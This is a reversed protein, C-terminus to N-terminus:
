IGVRFRRHCSRCRFRYTKEGRNRQFPNAELMDDWRFQVSESNNLSGGSMGRIWLAELEVADVQQLWQDTKYPHKVKRTRDVRVQWKCCWFAHDQFLHVYRVYNEAKEKLSHVYVAEPADQLVREGVVEGSSARLRGEVLISYLAEFKCSRRFM